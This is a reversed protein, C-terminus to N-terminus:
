LPTEKPADDNHFKCMVEREIKNFPMMCHQCVFLECVDKDASKKWVAPIFTHLGKGCNNSQSLKKKLNGIM